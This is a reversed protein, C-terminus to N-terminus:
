PPLDDRASDLQERLLEIQGQLKTAEADARDGREDAAAREGAPRDEDQAIKRNKEVEDLKEQRREELDKLQSEYNTRMVGWVEDVNQSELTKLERDISEVKAEQKELRAEAGQLAVHFDEWARSGAEAGDRDRRRNDVENRRSDAEERAAELEDRVRSVKQQWLTDFMGGVPVGPPLPTLFVSGPVGRGAVLLSSGHRRNAEVSASSRSSVFPHTAEVLLDELMADTVGDVDQVDSLTLFAGIESRRALVDRALEDPIEVGAPTGLAVVENPVAAANLAWLLNDIQHRTAESVPEAGGAPGDRREDKM